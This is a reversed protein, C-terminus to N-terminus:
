SCGVRQQSQNAKRMERNLKLNFALDLEDDDDMIENDFIKIATAEAISDLYKDSHHNNLVEAQASLDLIETNQQELSATVVRNLAISTQGTHEYTDVIKRITAYHHQTKMSIQHISVGHVKNLCLIDLRQQHTLVQYRGSMRQNQNQSDRKLSEIMLQRQHRAQEDEHHAALKEKSFNISVKKLMKEQDTNDTVMLTDSPWTEEIQM